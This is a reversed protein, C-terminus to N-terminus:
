SSRLQNYLKTMSTAYRDQSFQVQVFQRGAKGAESITENPLSAVMKLRSALASENLAPFLWGNQEHQVMEPIGGIDSGIVPKGLAMAELVSIPANEYWEAPLVVARAQRVHRHLDAGKQFGLFAVPHNLSRALDKAAQEFPGTGALKIQVKASACARILTEIGKTADLRGFYLFSDGAQYDPDFRSTDVWNPIHSFKDAPWGWEVFKNQFFRSPM